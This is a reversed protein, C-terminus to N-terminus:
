ICRLEDGTQYCSVPSAKEPWSDYCFLDLCSLGNTPASRSCVYTTDVSSVDFSFVWTWRKWGPAGRCVSHPCPGKCQVNASYVVLACVFHIFTFFLCVATGQSKVSTSMWAENPCTDWAERPSRPPFPTSTTFLRHRMPSRLTGFAATVRLVCPRMKFTLKHVPNNYFHPFRSVKGCLYVISTDPDYFPLLVGNSSDMEQVCIPEDM